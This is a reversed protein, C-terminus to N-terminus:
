LQSRLSNCIRCFGSGLFFVKLHHIIQYESFRVCRSATDERFTGLKEMAKPDVGYIVSLLETWTLVVWPVICARPFRPLSSLM